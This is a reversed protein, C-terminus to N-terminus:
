YSAVLGTEALARSYEDALDAVADDLGSYMGGRGVTRGSAVWANEQSQLDILAARSPTTRNYARVPMTTATSGSAWTQYGITQSSGASRGVSVHLVAHIGQELM